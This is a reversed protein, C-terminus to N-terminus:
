VLVFLSSINHSRMRMRKDVKPHV